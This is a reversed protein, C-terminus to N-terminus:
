LKGRYVTERVADEWERECFIKGRMAAIKEKASEIELSIRM